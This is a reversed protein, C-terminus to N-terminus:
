TVRIYRKEKDLFLDFVTEVFCVADFGAPEEVAEWTGGSLGFSQRGGSNGGVAEDEEVYGILYEDFTDNPTSGVRFSSLNIV